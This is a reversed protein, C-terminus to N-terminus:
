ENLNIIRTTGGSCTYCCNSCRAKNDLGVGWFSSSDGTVWAGYCIKEGALCAIRFEHVDDDDLNFARGPGPWQYGKRDASYFSIQVKNTHNSRVKFTMDGQAEAQVAILMQCVFAMAAILVLKTAKIV